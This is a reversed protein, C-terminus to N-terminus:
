LPYEVTLEYCPLDGSGGNYTGPNAATVLAPTGDEIAAWVLPVLEYLLELAQDDFAVVVYVPFQAEAPGTCSTQLPQLPPVGVIVTPPDPSAGLPQVRVQEVSATAAAIDAAADGIASM